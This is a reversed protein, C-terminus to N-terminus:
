DNILFEKILILFVISLYSYLTQKNIKKILSDLESDNNSFFIPIPFSVQLKILFDKNSFFFGIPDVNRDGKKFKLYKYYNYARSNICIIISLVNFLTIILITSQSFLM